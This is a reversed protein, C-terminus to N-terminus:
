GGDSELCVVAAARWADTASQTRYGEWFVVLRDSLRRIAQRHAGATVRSNRAHGVSERARPMTPQGAQPMTETGTGGGNGARASSCGHRASAIARWGRKDWPQGM